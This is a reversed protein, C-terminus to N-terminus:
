RARCVILIEPDSRQSNSNQASNFQRYKHGMEAIEVHSTGFRESCLHLLQDLVIMRENGDSGGESQSYSILVSSSQDQAADLLLAFAKPAARKSSFASKYRKAPYIGTTVSGNHLVGEVKYDVLTELVHYFRSYQQATYPPDLYFLDGQSNRAVQEAPM